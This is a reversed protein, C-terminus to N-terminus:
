GTRPAIKDRQRRRRRFPVVGIGFVLASAGFVPWALRWGDPSFSWEIEHTGADVRVGRVIGGVRLPAAPAGNVTVRWGPHWADALVAIAPADARAQIRVRNPSESVIAVAKAEGTDPWRGTLGEVPPQSLPDATHQLRRAATRADPVSQPASALWARGLGGGVAQAHLPAEGWNLAPDLPDPSLVVRVALFHLLSPPPLSDVRFWPRVPRPNLLSQLRETDRSVPLDYGRLDRVGVLAGTNPQLAWGLGLVRDSGVREVLHSTWAAPEPRHESSPLSGQDHWGAWVGTVVVGAFALPQVRKLPALGASVALVLTALGGLRAHNLPGPMGFVAIAMCGAWVGWLWRARGRVGAAAALGLAALGPHIRGDAWSWGPRNWTEPVPHGHINPWVLDLLQGAALTNGGHAHLTSSRLVEEVFPMWLPAALGVGVTMWILGCWWRFHVVLAAVAIMGVHAATEPHGGALVGAVALATVARSRRQLGWLIWPLWVATAAHPHLLWVSVYPSTMAAAGAIATGWPGAGLSGALLASGLGVWLLLWVVAADPGAEPLWLRLWTAPSGVASQADGMLPAGAWIMPNWLPVEGHEISRHVAERLAKFQLAPDSLHPNRVRGGASSQYAHHVSLHDNASVTEPGPIAGPFMAVPILLLLLLPWHTRM